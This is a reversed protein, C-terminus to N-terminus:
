FPARDLWGQVFDNIQPWFVYGAGALGVMLVLVVLAGGSKKEKKKKGM